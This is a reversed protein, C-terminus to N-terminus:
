RPLLPVAPLGAALRLTPPSLLPAPRGNCRVCFCACGPM